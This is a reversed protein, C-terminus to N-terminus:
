LLKQKREKRKRRKWERMRSRCIECTIFKTNIRIKGCISCLGKNIREVRSKHEKKNIKKRCSECSIYGITRKKGCYVCLKLKKRRKRKKRECERARDRCLDNFHARNNELWDNFRRRQDAKFKPNNRQKYYVKKSRALLKKRYAPLNRYRWLSSCNCSCFRKHRGTLERKCNKCKIMKFIVFGKGFWLM